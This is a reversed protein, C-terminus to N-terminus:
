FRLASQVTVDSLKAPVDARSSSAALDAALAAAAPAFGRRSLRGRLRKRASALRSKLTGLACDLQRAAEEYTKGELDCLVVAARFREPLRAVEEDLVALLERREVEGSSEVAAEGAAPRGRVVAFRSREPGAPSM